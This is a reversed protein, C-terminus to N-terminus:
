AVTTKSHPRITSSYFNYSSSSFTNAPAAVNCNFYSSEANLDKMVKCRKLESDSINFVVDGCFPAVSWIVPFLVRTDSVCLDCTLGCPRMFVDSTNFRADSCFVNVQVRLDSWFVCTTKVRLLYLCDLNISACVRWLEFQDMLWFCCFININWLSNSSNTM